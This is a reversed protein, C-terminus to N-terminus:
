STVTVVCSADGGTFIVGDPFLFPSCVNGKYGVLWKYRVVDRFPSGYVSRAYIRTLVYYGQICAFYYWFKDGSYYDTFQATSLYANPYTALPALGPPTPGYFLTCNQFIHNNSTPASVHVALSTPIQACPCGGLTAGGAGRSFREGVWRNNVFRCVLDDGATPAASGVVYVLQAQAANVTLAGPGAEAEPGAVDVPHVTFFAGAATPVTPNGFVRGVFAPYPSVALPDRAPAALAVADRRSRARRYADPTM